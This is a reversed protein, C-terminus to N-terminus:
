GIGAEVAKKGDIFWVVKHEILNIEIAVTQGDMVAVGGKRSNGKEWVNGSYSNYALSNKSKYAYTVGFCERTCIGMMINRYSTKKQRVKFQYTKGEAL